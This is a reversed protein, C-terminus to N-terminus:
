DSRNNPHSLNIEMKCCCCGDIKFGNVRRLGSMTGARVVFVTECYHLRWSREPRRKGEQTKSETLDPRTQGPNLIIHFIQVSARVMPTTM